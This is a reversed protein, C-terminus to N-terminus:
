RSTTKSFKNELYLMLNVMAIRAHIKDPSFVFDSLQDLTCEGKITTLTLDDGVAALSGTSSLGVVVSPSVKVTFGAKTAEGGSAGTVCGNHKFQFAYIGYNSSYILDGDDLTLCIDVNKECIVAFLNNFILICSITICKFCRFFIKLLIM